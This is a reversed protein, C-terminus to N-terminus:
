YKRQKHRIEYLVGAYGSDRVHAFDAVHHDLGASVHAFDAVHHDLGACLLDVDNGVSMKGLDECAVNSWLVSMLHIFAESEDKNLVIKRTEKVKM